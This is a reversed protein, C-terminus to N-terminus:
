QLSGWFPDTRDPTAGVPLTGGAIPLEAVRVSSVHGDLYAVNLSKSHGAFIARQPGPLSSDWTETIFAHVINVITGDPAFSGDMFFSTKSPHQIQSVHQAQRPSVYQATNQNNITACVYSNISYGLSWYLRKSDPVYDYSAPCTVVTATKDNQSAAELGLYQMVGASERWGNADPLKGKHDTIWSIGALGLQRLNSACRAKNASSRMNTVASITIAALIGIIAIVVLLETLTFARRTASPYKM